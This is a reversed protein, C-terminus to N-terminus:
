SFVSSKENFYLLYSSSGLDHAISHCNHSFDLKEKYLLAMQDLAADLGRNELIAILSDRWCQIKANNEDCSVGAKSNVPKLWNKKVKITGTFYPSLHDHYGWTGNKNFTFSWNKDASIPKKSDFESYQSHIPHDNSAPWFPADLATTFRVTDGVSIEIENPYFGDERLEGVYEKSEPGVLYNLALFGVALFVIGGASVSLIFKRSIKTRIDGTM